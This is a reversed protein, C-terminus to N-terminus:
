IHILSLGATGAHQVLRAAVATRNRQGVNTVKGFHDRLLPIDTLKELRVVRLRKGVSNGRQEIILLM